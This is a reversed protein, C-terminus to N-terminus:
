QIIKWQRMYKATTTQIGERIPYEGQYADNQVVNRAGRQDASSKESEARIKESRKEKIKQCPEERDGHHEREAGIQRTKKKM